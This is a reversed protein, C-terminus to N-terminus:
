DRRQEGVNETDRSLYNLRPPVSRILIDPMVVIASVVDVIVFMMARLVVLPGEQWARFSKRLRGIPLTFLAASAVRLRPWRGASRGPFGLIGYRVALIAHYRWHKRWRWHTQLTIERRPHWVTADGVFAFRGIRLARAALEVDECAALTFQEDMGGIAELVARRYAIGATHYFGGHPAEPSEWLIGRELGLPRLSLEAGVCEPDADMEEVVTRLVNADPVVDSDMFLITPASSVRIGHNRAAAPGYAPRKELRVNLGSNAAENVVGRLHATSGDDCVVVEFESFPLDQTVLAGLVQALLDERDRVPIVVSLRLAENVPLSDSVDEATQM